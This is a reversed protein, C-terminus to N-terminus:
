VKQSRATRSDQELNEASLIWAQLTLTQVKKGRMGADDRCSLEGARVM